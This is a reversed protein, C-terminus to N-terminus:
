SQWRLRIISDRKRTSITVYEQNTMMRWFSPRSAFFFWFYILNQQCRWGEYKEAFAIKKKKKELKENRSITQKLASLLQQQFTVLKTPATTTPAVFPSDRFYIYKRTNCPIHHTPTKRHTFLSFLISVSQTIIEVSLYIKSISIVIKKEKRLTNRLTYKSRQFRIAICIGIM